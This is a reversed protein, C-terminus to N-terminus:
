HPYHYIIYPPKERRYGSGPYMTRQRFDSLWHSGDYMTMHGAPNGGEYPQIIAVDGAQPTYGRVYGEDSLGEPNNGSYIVVPRFGVKELESSYNKANGSPNVDFGGANLARRVYKACQGFSHSEVHEKLYEITKDIDKEIGRFDDTWQGGDPNGAPVRPQNPDFGAKLQHLLWIIEEDIRQIKRAEELLGYDLCDSILMQAKISLQQAIQFCASRNQTFINHM